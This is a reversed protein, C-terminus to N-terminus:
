KATILKTVRRIEDLLGESLPDIEVAEAGIDEAIIKVSSIPQQAQYLIRRVGESRGREIMQALHKASPEKGEDEIAIQEVGYARAYYTLAPHYIFISKVGSREIAERCEVDLRELEARLALYNATYNVSDPYSRQIAEVCNRAMIMLESPSTWIHPDVGHDSHSHSSNGHTHSCSGGILEIGRSLDVVKGQDKVRKIISEEFGLLGTSFIMQSSNLAIFQKPTPEYSEVSAGSPVVVEIPFDGGVIREVVSRLPTISVYIASTPKYVVDEVCSSFLLLTALPM